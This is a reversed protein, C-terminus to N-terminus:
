CQAAKVVGSEVGLRGPVFVFPVKEKRYVVNNWSSLLPDRPLWQFQM